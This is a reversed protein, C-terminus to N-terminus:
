CVVIFCLDLTTIHSISVLDSEPLWGNTNGSINSGSVCLRLKVLDYDDINSCKQDLFHLNASDGSGIFALCCRNSVKWSPSHLVYLEGSNIPPHSNNSKDSLFSFQYLRHQSVANSLKPEIPTIQLLNLKYTERNWFRNKDSNMSFEEQVNLLGEELIHPTLHKIIDPTNTFSPPIKNLTTSTAKVEDKFRISGQSM